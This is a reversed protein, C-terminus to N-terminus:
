TAAPPAEPTVAASNPAKFLMWHVVAGAIFLLLSFWYAFQYDLQIAGQGKSSVESDMSVKLILLFIGGLVSIIMTFFAVPKKKIFSVALCLIAALFAFLAMPQAEIRDSEPQNEMSQNNFMGQPNLLSQDMDAGTILQFGSLKMVTQGSCSLNVFPLIFCFVILVYVAPSLKKVADM